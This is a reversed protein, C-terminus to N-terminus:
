AQLAVVDYMVSLIVTSTCYTDDVVTDTPEAIVM